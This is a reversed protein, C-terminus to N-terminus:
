LGENVKELPAELATICRVRHKANDGDDENLGGDVLDEDGHEERSLEPKLYRVSSPPGPSPIATAQTCM